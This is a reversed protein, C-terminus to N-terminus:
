GGAHVDEDQTAVLARVVGAFLGARVGQDQHVGVGVLVVQRDQRQRAVQPHFDRVVADIFPFEELWRVADEQFIDGSGVLIAGPGLRKKVSELFPFDYTWSIAGSLFFIADPGFAEIARRCADPSLRDVVADILAVQYKEALRGSQMLLDVPEFIYNSKTTKSCYYDRIVLEPAPPNLLLVKKIERRFSGETM